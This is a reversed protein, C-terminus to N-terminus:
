TFAISKSKNKPDYILGKGHLRNMLHWDLAKWARFDDHLTLYLLALAAEDVKNEDYDV